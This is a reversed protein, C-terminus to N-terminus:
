VSAGLGKPRALVVDGKDLGALIEVQESNRAGLKVAVATVGGTLTRRYAVPGEPSVAIAEVPVTLVDHLRDTEVTGRYRMGPRMREPDTRELAIELRVVKLQNHRSKRQVVRSIESVRGAFELDPHADLHLTVAQDQVVAGAQAEEVEGIAMMRTLDPIDLVKEGVWCSDGVKKKENRWNTVYIIIGDRPAKVMMSDMAESIEKVQQEAWRFDSRLAALEAEGSRRQAAAQALLAAVEKTALELDLQAKAMENSAVLLSPQETKLRAKRQAAETEALRLAMDQEKIVLDVEKKEIEKQASEAENQRTQLKERLQTTDLGLVPTGATVTSGEEALHAIQFNWMRKVQPPGILSSEVAKLTGTVEAGLVLDTRQITVWKRNETGLRALVLGVVVILTVAGLSFILRRMM